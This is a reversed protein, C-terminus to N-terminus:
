KTLCQTPTYFIMRANLLIDDQKKVANIPMIWHWKKISKKKRQNYGDNFRSVCFSPEVFLSSAFTWFRSFGRREYMCHIIPGFSDESLSSSINAHVHADSHEFSFCVNPRMKYSIYLLGRCSLIHIRIQFEWMLKPLRVTSKWIAPWCLNRFQFILQWKRTRMWLTMIKPFPEPRRSTVPM